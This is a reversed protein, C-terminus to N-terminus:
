DEDRLNKVGGGGAFPPVAGLFFEFGVAMKNQWGLLGIWHAKKIGRLGAVHSEELFEAARPIQLVLDAGEVDEDFRQIVEGVFDFLELGEGM